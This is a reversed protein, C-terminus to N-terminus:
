QKDGPMQLDEDSESEDSKPYTDSANDMYDDNITEEARRANEAANRTINIDEKLKRTSSSFSSFVYQKILSANVDYLIVGVVNAEQIRLLDLAREVQKGNHDGSKILVIVAECKAATMAITPDSNVSGPAVIEYDQSSFYAEEKKMRGSEIASLEEERKDKLISNILNIVYDTNESLSTDVIAIKKLGETVKLFNVQLWLRYFETKRNGKKMPDELYSDETRISFKRMQDTAIGLTPIGYRIESTSPIYISSDWIFYLFVIIASVVGGFIAGSLSMAWTRDEFGVKDASNASSIIRADEIEKLEPAFRAIADAYKNALLKAEAQSTSQSSVVVIRTDTLLTASVKAKVEEIDLSRGIEEAAYDAVIDNYVLDEWTQKNIYINEIEVNDIYQLYVKAEARYEPRGSFVTRALYYCGGFILAGLAIGYIIFRIRRLSVLVMLRFDVPEKSYPVKM